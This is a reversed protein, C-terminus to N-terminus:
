FLSGADGIPFKGFEKGCIVSVVVESGQMVVFKINIVKLSAVTHKLVKGPTAKQKNTFPKRELESLNILDDDLKIINFIKEGQYQINKIEDKLLWFTM